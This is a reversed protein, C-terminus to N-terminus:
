DPGIRTLLDRILTAHAGIRTELPLSAAPTELVLVTEARPGAELGRPTVVTESSMLEDISSDSVPGVIGNEILEGFRTKGSLKLAIGNSLLSTIALKALPDGTGLPGQSYVYGQDIVDDEHLDLSYRVPYNSMQGLIYGTIAAAEPSSAAARAQGPRDPDQLLHSSDGVSQMAAGEAYGPMNLYRWNRAYGWPNLLPLLVVAHKRGFRALTDISRSVAVPGAPEEGHIGTLLWLAPGAVPSRLAIVPLAQATGVPRSHVIVDL